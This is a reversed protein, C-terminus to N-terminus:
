DYIRNFEETNWYQYLWGLIEVGERFDSEPVETIIKTIFGNNSLLNDPLLLDIYDTIGDFLFVLIKGM